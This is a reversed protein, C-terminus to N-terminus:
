QEEGGRRERFFGTMLAEAEDALVGRTVWARHNLGPVADFLDLASGMAGMRPESAGYVVREVRAQVVAGACMPCPELTVYLTAGTLRENGLVRNAEEIALVEAHATARHMTRTLNHARAVVRGEHVLVAGIPVEGERAATAAEELAERMFAEDRAPDVAPRNSNVERNKAQLAERRELRARELIERASELEDVLRSRTVGPRPATAIRVVGDRGPIDSILGFRRAAAELGSPLEDLWAGEESLFTTLLSALADRDLEDGPRAGLLACTAVVRVDSPSGAGKELGALSVGRRISLEVFRAVDELSVDPQPLVYM